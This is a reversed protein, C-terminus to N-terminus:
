QPRREFFPVHSFTPKIKVARFWKPLCEDGSDSAIRCMTRMRAMEGGSVKFTAEEPTVQAPAGHCPAKTLFDWLTVADM